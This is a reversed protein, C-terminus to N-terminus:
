VMLLKVASVPVAYLSAISPSHLTVCLSFTANDTSTTLLMYTASHNSKDATPMVCSACVASLNSINCVYMCLLKILFIVFRM